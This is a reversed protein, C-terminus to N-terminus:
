WGLYMRKVKGVSKICKKEILNERVRNERGDVGHSFM